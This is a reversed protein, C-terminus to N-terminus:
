GRVKAKWEAVESCHENWGDVRDMSYAGSSPTVMTKEYPVEDLMKDILAALQEEMEDCRKILLYRSHEREYWELIEKKTTLKETPM